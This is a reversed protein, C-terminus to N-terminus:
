DEEETWTWVGNVPDQVAEEPVEPNLDGLLRWVTGSAVPILGSEPVPLIDEGSVYHTQPVLMHQEREGADKSWHTYELFLNRRVTDLGTRSVPPRKSMDKRPAGPCEPEEPFLERRLSDGIARMESQTYRQTQPKKVPARPCDM